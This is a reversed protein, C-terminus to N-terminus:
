PTTVMSVVELLTTNSSPFARCRMQALHQHLRRITPWRVRSTITKFMSIVIVLEDNAGPYDMPLTVGSISQTISRSWRSDINGLNFPATVSTISGSPDALPNLSLNQDVGQAKLGYRSGAAVVKAVDVTISTASTFGTINAVTGDAYNFTGGVMQATFATGTGTVVNGVQAITGPSAEINPDLNDGIRLRLNAAGGALVDLDSPYVLRVYREQTPIQYGM